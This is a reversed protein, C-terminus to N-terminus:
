KLHVVPLNNPVSITSAAGDDSPVAGRFASASM